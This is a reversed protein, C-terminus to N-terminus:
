LRKEWTEGVLRQGYSEHSETAVLRYGADLYIGRAATLISNTWLAIKRYGVERAFAEAQAVLRKGVGLGRASPEVYLLRLKATQRTKKAITVSGIIRTAGDDGTQEALWCRERTPDFQDIFDAAIQAVLGEFRIDWGYEQAYLAAHRHIVWGLDGPQHTRLRVEPKAPADNPSADIEPPPSVGSPPSQGGAASHSLLETAADLAEALQRQQAPTLPALWSQVQAASAANLTAFARQGRSTLELRTRRADLPDRRRRLWRQASFGAVIRSVQAGDLGLQQCLQAAALGEARQNAQALEYLVRAQTLSLPAGLEATVEPLLAANFLGLRHTHLRNFARIREVLPNQTDSM